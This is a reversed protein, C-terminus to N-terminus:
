AMARETVQEVAAAVIDPRVHHPMHGIGPLAILEAGEIDRKLGESHLHPWVVSDADGTVIVTPATIERYRPQMQIVNDKLNAVDRANALFNGPRLVLPVRAAQRYDPPMPDPAFVGRMVPDLILAAVPFVLTWAFLRGILPLTSVTYYWTIGGPWTHTAPAVFVLGAVRSPHTVALAAAVSGGLSHAVIVAREIALADMLGAILKAQV